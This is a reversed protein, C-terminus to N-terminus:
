QKEDEESEKDDDIFDDVTNEDSDVEPTDIAASASISMLVLRKASEWEKGEIFTGLSKMNDANIGFFARFFTETFLNAFSKKDRRGRFRIFLEEAVGQVADVYEQADRLWSQESSTLRAEKRRKERLANLKKFDIEFSRASSNKKTQARWHIYNRTINYITREINPKAENMADETHIRFDARISQAMRKAEGKLRGTSDNSTERPPVFLEHPFKEALRDFGDYWSRKALLNEIQLARYPYSKIERLIFGYDSILNRTYDDLSENFLSAVVKQKGAARYSYVEAGRAGRVSETIVQANALQPMFSYLAAERPTSIFLDPHWRKKAALHKRGELSHRFESAFNGVHIVDPVVIVPKHYVPKCDLLGTHEDAKIKLSKPTFITSALAWFHLLLVKEGVDSLKEDKLGEKMTNLCFTKKLGVPGISVLGKWLNSIDENKEEDNIKFMASQMKPHSLYSDWASDRINEQWAEPASFAFFYDFAPRLEEYKFVFRGSGLDVKEVFKKSTATQKQRYERIVPTGRYRERLVSDFSAKTLLVRLARRDKTLEYEPVVYRAKEEDSQAQERLIEMAQFQLLLGAIGARHQVTYDPRMPDFEIPELQEKDKKTAKATKNM